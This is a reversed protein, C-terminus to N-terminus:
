NKKLVIIEGGREVLTDYIQRLMDYENTLFLTKNVNFRFQVLLTNGQMMYNLRVSLGNDETRMMLTEPLEEVTYGDPLTTNIVM